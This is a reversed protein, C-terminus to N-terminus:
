IFFVKGYKLNNNEDFLGNSGTYTKSSIKNLEKRLLLNLEKRYLKEIHRKIDQHNLSVAKIIDQSKLTTPVNELNYKMNEYIDIM